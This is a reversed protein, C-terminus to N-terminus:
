CIDGKILSEIVVSIERIPHLFREDVVFLSIHIPLPCVAFIMITGRSLKIFLFKSFLSYM